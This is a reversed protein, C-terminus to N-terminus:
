LNLGVEWQCLAVSDQYWYSFCVGLTLLGTPAFRISVLALPSKTIV